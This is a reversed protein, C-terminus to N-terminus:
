WISRKKEGRLRRVGYIQSVGLVPDRSSLPSKLEM